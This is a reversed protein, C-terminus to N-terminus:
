GLVASGGKQRRMADVECIQIITLNDCDKGNSEKSVVDLQSATSLGVKRSRRM